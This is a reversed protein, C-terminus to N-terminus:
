QSDTGFAVHLGRSFGTRPVPSLSMTHVGPFLSPLPSYQDQCSVSIDIGQNVLSLHGLKTPQM